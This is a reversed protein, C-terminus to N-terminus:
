GKTYRTSCITSELNKLASNDGVGHFLVLPPNSEDGCAIIHTSGYKTDIDGEQLEVGWASLLQNYTEFVKRKAKENKFVKM